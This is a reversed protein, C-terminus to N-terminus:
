RRRSAAAGAAGRGSWAPSSPRPLAPRRQAVADPRLGGRGVPGRRPGRHRPRLPGRPPRLRVRGPVVVVSPPGTEAVRRIEALLDPGIWPDATRGASQWAVGWTSAPDTTWGSRPRRRRRGVRGGPRSLPRGRGGGAPPPQPRHLVRATRGPARAPCAPWPPRPGTPWCTLGARRGPAVLPITTLAPPRTRREATAEGARRLYEGSGLSSQHPTLVLGVVRDVGAGALDAVAEEISPSAYKAGYRVLHVARPGRGGPRRGARRGPGPDARDAALDGRHGPLARGARGAARPDPAPGAPDRHLLARHGRGPPRPGTPWSSCGPRAPGARHREGPRDRGGRGARGEAHVLAVVRELIAPDTEPLVGHGLNFIHGPAARGPRAGRPDRGRGGGVRGPLRGPRPQGARGARPRGAAPGRRAAGALRGRGRRERGRGDLGAARGTGVGFLITPVGPHSEALEAFLRAPPPCSWSRTTARALPDRGLQRLAPRGLGRRRAPVAALGPGPRDLREVLEHWVAPDGHM